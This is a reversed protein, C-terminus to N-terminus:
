ALARFLEANLRGLDSTPDDKYWGLDAALREAYLGWGEAFASMGGFPSQRRFSPLSTMEVQLAIQFHHGPIAEHAALTRMGVKPFKPGRLPVRFIGPRSGDAPPGSYNAAANAEQFEPIRQVICQSKPRIDFAESSRKNNDVIFKAYDALIQDRVNPSDPYGNDDQLKRFREESTGERYGLKRFLGEMEGEIRTVEDLGKRHIQGATMSTTTFRRLAFAYAADGGPFRWLGADNTANANITALSDIARRYAPDVGDAVIKVADAAMTTKLAPDIGEIKQLKQAFATSLINADPQPTTFRKMQNVTEFSLFGPLCINQKARDSMMIMAQDVKTGAPFHFRLHPEEDIINRLQYELMDASFQQAPSLQDRRFRALAALADKARSIRRHAADDSIDSLKSDLKEQTARDFIRMSTAMEPEQAVWERFLKELFADFAPDPGAAILNSLPAAMGAALLAQRRTIM